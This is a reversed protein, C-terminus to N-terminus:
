RRREPPDRPRSAVVTRQGVRLKNWRSGMVLRSGPVRRLVEAWADLVDSTVKQLNGFYGFTVYGNTTCPPAALPPGDTLAPRYAWAGGDLRILKETNLEEAGEPDAVADTVWYDIALVGTSHPYGLWTAQVPAMRRAFAAMRHGPMWGMLDVLVDVGDDRVAAALQADSWGAVRRFHEASAELRATVLDDGHPNDSYV